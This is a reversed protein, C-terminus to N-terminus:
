YGDDTAADLPPPLLSKITGRRVRSAPRLRSYIEHTDTTASPPMQRREYDSCEYLMIFVTVSLHQATVSIVARRDVNYKHDVTRARRSRSVMM